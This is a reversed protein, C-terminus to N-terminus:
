MTGYQLAENRDLSLSGQSESSLVKDGLLYLWIEKIVQNIVELGILMEVWRDNVFQM